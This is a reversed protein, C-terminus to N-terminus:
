AVIFVVAMSSRRLKISTSYSFNERAYIAFLTPISTPDKMEPGTASLKGALISRTILTDTATIPPAARTKGNHGFRGRMPSDNQRCPMPCAATLALIYLISKGFLCCIELGLSALFIYLRMLLICHKLLNFFFFTFM